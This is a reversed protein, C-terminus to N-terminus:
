NAFTIEAAKSTMKAGRPGKVKKNEGKSTKKEGTRQPHGQQEYCKKISTLLIFFNFLLFLVILTM